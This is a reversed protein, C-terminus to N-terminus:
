LGCRLGLIGFLYIRLIVNTVRKFDSQDSERRKKITTWQFHGQRTFSTTNHMEWLGWPQFLLWKWFPFPQISFFSFLFIGIIWRLLLLPLCAWPLLRVCLSLPPIVNAHGRGGGSSSCQERSNLKIKPVDALWLALMQPKSLGAM